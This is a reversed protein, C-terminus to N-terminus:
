FFDIDVSVRNLLLQLSMEFADFNDDYREIGFNLLENIVDEDGDERFFIQGSEFYPEITMLRARKDNTRKVGEPKIGYRRQYEEIAARQYQVDEFGLVIPLDPYKKRLAEYVGHINGLQENFGWRGSLNQLNYFNNDQGQGLVNIASYDATQQQSIAFDTGIALSQLKPLKDYYAVKKIIRGEEPIIKLEFERLYYRSGAKKIQNIRAQPFEEIWRSVGNEDTLSYQKYVGIGHEIIKNKMRMYFSDTHLLNGILVIKGVKNDLAPQVDSLFWEETKDRGEKTRVQDINEVDDCVILDPRFQLHRLGRVKEGRSRSMIRVGNKLFINTATWEEDGQFDGFDQRILENNELENIINTIMLKVQTKTDSTLIIFNKKKFVACWLPYAVSAITSKASGRFAVLELFNIDTNELDSYIERHFDPVVSKLYHSLYNITFYALSNESLAIIENRPLNQLLNKQQELPM